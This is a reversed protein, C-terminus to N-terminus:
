QTALYALAVRTLTRLNRPPPQQGSALMREVQPRSMGSAAAVREAGMTKLTLLSQIEWRGNSRPEFRELVEGWDSVDGREVDELRHAEKRIHQVWSPFVHRRALLGATSSSCPLGGPGLNKAEPHARYEEVVDRTSQVVSM